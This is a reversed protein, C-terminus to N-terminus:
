NAGSETSERGARSPNSEVGPLPKYSRHASEAPSFTVAAFLATVVSPGFSWSRTEASQKASKSWFSVRNRSTAVEQSPRDSVARSRMVAITWASPRHRENRGGPRSTRRTSASRAPASENSCTWATGPLATSDSSNGAVSVPSGLEGEKLFLTRLNRVRRGNRWTDMQRCCRGTRRKQRTRRGARARPQMSAHM